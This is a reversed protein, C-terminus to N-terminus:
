IFLMYYSIKPNKSLTYIPYCRYSKGIQNNFLNFNFNFPVKLIVLSNYINLVSNVVNGIEYGSLLLNLFTQNKYDVGEWPPDFYFIDAHTKFILNLCNDNMTTIPKVYKGVVQCINEMNKNLVKCTQKDMEISTINALPFLLRFLITDCGINATCDMISQVNMEKTEQMICAKVQEIHWPMLSSYRSEKVVELEGYNFNSPSQDIIYKDFRLM